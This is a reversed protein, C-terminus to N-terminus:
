APEPASRPANRGKPLSSQRFPVIRGENSQSISRSEEHSVSDDAAPAYISPWNLMMLGVGTWGVWPLVWLQLWHQTILEIPQSKREPAMDAM